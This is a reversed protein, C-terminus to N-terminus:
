SVAHVHLEFLWPVMVLHSYRGNFNSIIIWPGTGLRTQKATDTSSIVMSEALGDGLKFHHESVSISPTKIHSERGYIGDSTEDNFGLRPISDSKLRDQFRHQFRAPRKM